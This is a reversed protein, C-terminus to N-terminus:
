PVCEAHYRVRVEDGPQPQWAGTLEVLNQAFDFRWGDAPNAPVPQGELRVELSARSALQRLAFVREAAFAAEGIRTLAPGLDAACLSEVRGGSAAAVERYRRGALETGGCGEEPAVIASLQVRDWRGGKAGIWAALHDLAAGPSSDDEDSALLVAFRTPNRFFRRANIDRPTRGSGAARDIMRTVAALGSQSEIGRRGTRMRCAFLEARAAANAQTSLVLPDEDRCRLLAGAAAGEGLARRSGRQWATGSAEASAARRAAAIVLREQEVAMSRSDDIVLLLDVDPRAAVFREELEQEEVAVGSLAVTHRQGRGAHEIVLTAQHAAPEARSPYLRLLVEASENPELIMREGLPVRRGDSFLVEGRFAAADPGELRLQYILLRGPGFASLRVTKPSTGCLGGDVRPAPGLDLRDPASLEAVLAEGALETVMRANVVDDTVLTIKGRDVEDFPLYRVPVLLGGRAPIRAPLQLNTEFLAGRNVGAGLLMGVGDCRNQVTITATGVFGLSTPPFDIREPARSLCDRLPAAGELSVKAEGWDADRFILTRLPVGDRQTRTHHRVAVELEQGPELVVPLPPLGEVAFLGADINYREVVCPASSAALLSFRQVEGLGFRLHVPWPALKCRERVEGEISYIAPTPEGTDVLVEGRLPGPRTPEFRLQAIWREGVPLRSPLFLRLEDARASRFTAAGPHAELQGDNILTIPLPPPAEEGLVVPAFRLTSGPPPELRLRARLLSVSDEGCGSLLVLGFLGRALAQRACRRRAPTLLGRPSRPPRRALLALALFALAWPSARPPGGRCTCGEEALTRTPGGDAAEDGADFALGADPRPGVDLPGGGDYGPPRSFIRMRREVESVQGRVDRATARIFVEGAELDGPATFLYPPATRTGVSRGNVEVAVEVVEPQEAGAPPHPDRNVELAIGFGPRISASLEPATFRLRPPLVIPSKRPGLERLVGLHSNQFDEAPNCSCPREAHEGCRADARSFTQFEVCSELYTMVDGCLHAHELGITHGVEHAVVHCLALGRERGVGGLQGAFTFNMVNTLMGACDLPSIGAISGRLGLDRSRGAVVARIFPRDLRPAFGLELEFPAFHRYLCRLLEDEAELDLLTEPLEVEEPAISSQDRRADDPGPRILCGGPCLDLHLYLPEASLARAATETPDRVVPVFDLLESPATPPEAGCAVGCALALASLLSRARGRM